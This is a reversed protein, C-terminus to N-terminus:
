AIFLDDGSSKKNYELM